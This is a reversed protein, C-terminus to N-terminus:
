VRLIQLGQACLNNQAVRVVQAQAGTILAHALQPPQVGKRPPVAGHQRIAATELYPAQCAQALNRLLAHAEAVM